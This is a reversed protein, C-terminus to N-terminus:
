RGSGNVAGLAADWNHAIMALSQRELESQRHLENWPEPDIHRRIAKEIRRTLVDPPLADLEAARDGFRSLYAKARPDTKKIPVNVLHFADFDDHLLGWREWEFEAGFGLLRTRADNELGLGSPDHDGFYAIVVDKGRDSIRKIDEAWEYAFSESSYGRTVWLSAGYPEVAIEFVGELAQKECAVMVVTDQSNWLDRRYQGAVSDLIQEVGEWAARQIKSRTRDVIKGYDILQERRMSLVQRQVQACGRKNNEVAGRSVCQYFVQRASMVGDFSDVIDIITLRLAHTKLGIGRTM